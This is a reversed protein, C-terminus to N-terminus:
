TVLLSYFTLHSLRGTETWRRVLQVWKNIYNQINKLVPNIKLESLIGENTKYDKRTYKETRIIFKIEVSM